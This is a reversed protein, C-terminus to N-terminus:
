GTSDPIRYFRNDPIIRFETDPPIQYGPIDPIQHFLTDPVDRYDSVRIIDLNRPKHVKHVLIHSILIHSIFWYLFSVTYVPLLGENSCIQM